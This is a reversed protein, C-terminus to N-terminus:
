PTGAIGPLKPFITAYGVHKHGALYRTLRELGLGWGSSPPIGGQKVLEIFWGYKHLPEGLKRIREVIQPYRYERAGGDIVEGYGEPLLLNFDLNYRPDDRDPLYYFGRSIAPYGIIWVPSDYYEAIRTEATHTLEKGWEVPEGLKEALELAEDYRIRPFPPKLIVPEKREGIDYILDMYKDAITKSVNYLLEEALRMVDELGSMAWEIDLQTFESLHRGTWINEPPEERINRATFFVKEYVAASAQKFMIVSSTLEYTEGYYKTKLKGAGRLGPDSAVSIMPPLLEIFGKSYLIGRSYRTVYSLLKITSSIKPNRFYWAYNKAYDTLGIHDIRTYKIIREEVPKHIVKYDVVIITDDAVIGKLWLLTELPLSKIRDSGIGRLKFLEIGSPDRFVIKDGTKDAIWAIIEVARSDRCQKLHKLLITRRYKSYLPKSYTKSSKLGTKSTLVCGKDGQNYWENKSCNNLSSGQKDSYKKGSGM